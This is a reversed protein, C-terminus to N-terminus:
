YNNYTNYAPFNQYNQNTHNTAQPSFFVVKGLGVDHCHTSNSANNLHTHLGKLPYFALGMGPRPM